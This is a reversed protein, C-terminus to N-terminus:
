TSTRCCRRSASTGSRPTTDAPMRLQAAYDLASYVTLEQHVIDKQPVYGMDNRFLDFNRYLDVGNVLVQGHTAPRFGNIADLLTSKGSGSMGVLAVFEQPYISLSIDQLLNKDKSVWKNLRLADLRLGEEDHRELAEAGFVLRCPGIRIANGPQLIREGVVREGNVFTGNTSNLDAIVFAGDRRTIRAHFRSVAPHVIVTDNQPDRGISLTARGHLDLTRIPVPAEALPAVRYTLTVTPGISLVDGDALLRQAIRQGEFFLGNKSGLDTIEYGADRRKLQAHRASVVPVDIVIDSAPDRGLILAERELPFDRTWQPTSVRLVPASPAVFEITRPLPSPSTAAAGLRFRLEFTGIHIVDGDALPRATRPPLEADNLRTGNSSGLDTILYRNAERAIRAHYRSVAPDNLVLANDPARGIGLLDCDLLIEESTGSRSHIELRALPTAM